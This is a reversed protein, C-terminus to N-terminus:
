IKRRMRSRFYERTEQDTCYIYCGKMGRTMLTRYTNKIIAQILQETEDPNEKMRKRWGHITRDDKDRKAPNGQVVGGRVILDDGVIVGIYDCDLGQATHICGVENVGNKNIMFKGGEQKMNWKAAFGFEPFVIDDKEPNKTSVWSWCYGALLRAKNDKKNKELILNRLETPNDFVQFDYDIGALDENVTDEIQLTNDVWALYGDSGNCRFQSELKERHVTIGKEKAIREITAIDGYDNIHVIQNPDIFFISFLSADMIEKIQNKGRKLFSTKETLRHAEDVILAQIANPSFNIFSGSGVFLEKLEIMKKGDATLKEFYVDRPTSTKNVYKAFFGLKLLEALLNIAVVSKGTGSGGEVILTHKNTETATIALKKATEFVVKQDDILIFEKNGRMMGAVADSIAKNPKIDSNDIRGVINSHDGKKIFRKIFERLKSAESRLFVPALDLYEQYFPSNIIGDDDYNHLYACPVLTINEETIVSNFGKLLAAYSWAQYSPHSVNKKGHRYEACVIGDYPTYEAKNWGKLEIIVVHDSIGDSGSIMFDIRKSMQPIHYEISVYCDDPIERDALVKDMFPLSSKFSNLESASVKKGTYTLINKYIINEIDNSLM